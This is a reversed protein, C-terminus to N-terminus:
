KRRRFLVALGGIALLGLTAPEPAPTAAPAAPPVGFGFGKRMAAFDDLDVDGDGDFDGALMGPPGTMGFHGTFTDLDKSDIDWDIDTDGFDSPGPDVVHNHSPLQNLNLTVAEVGGKEGLRWRSLGPGTGAHVAARGRLDPLGFTTRGDGGYTTGLLSFLADNSPIPLLQGDCFAWGRPAFNGAFLSIEGVFPDAGALAIGGGDDGDTLNRSPYVGQLAIIYNLGLSPEMNAHPQSGGTDGLMINSPPPDHDHSPIETVDLAPAEEGLRQGLTRPTLGPGSGVGIPTRGRLDPLGFITRGDGGYTTGLISFLATYSSIGLLQGDAFAWGRPAFNGAFYTLDGIFPESSAANIPGGDGGDTLNRPPFLGELAIIPNLGLFPQMNDHGQNGGANQAGNVPYPLTHNHSPMQAISVTATESGSRQGQTRPTLGPGTGPGIPTRGRPGPLGFTTRGDGGFTTGLIAFLADNQSIALLQGDCFAWGRPAFNGGFMSVEGIFPEGGNLAELNSGGGTINRSPFTGQLAIIYNVALSPQINAHSQGGGTVGTVEANTVSTVALVMVAGVLFAAYRGIPSIRNSPVVLVINESVQLDM